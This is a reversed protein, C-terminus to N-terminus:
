ITMLDYSNCLQSLEVDLDELDDLDLIEASIIHQTPDAYCLDLGCFM